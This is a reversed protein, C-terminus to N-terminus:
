RYFLFLLIIDGITLIFHGQAFHEACLLSESDARVGTVIIYHIESNAKAPLVVLFGISVHMATVKYFM